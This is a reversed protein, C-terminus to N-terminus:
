KSKSKKGYVNKSDYYKTKFYSAYHMLSVTYYKLMEDSSSLDENFCDIVGKIIQVFNENTYKPFNKNELKDFPINKIRNYYKDIQSNIKLQKKNEFFSELAKKYENNYSECFMIFVDGFGAKKEEEDELVIFKRNDKNLTNKILPYIKEDINIMRKEKFAKLFEKYINLTFEIENTKSINNAYYNEILTNFSFILRQYPEKVSNNILNNDLVDFVNNLLIFMEDWSTPKKFEHGYHNGYIPGFIIDLNYKTFFGNKEYLEKQEKTMDEFFAPGFIYKLIEILTDKENENKLLEEMKQFGLFVRENKIKCCKSFVKNKSNMDQKKQELKNVENELIDCYQAYTMGTKDM